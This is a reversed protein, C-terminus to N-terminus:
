RGAARRDPDDRRGAPGPVDAARAAPHHSLARGADREPLREPQRHRHAQRRGARRRRPDRPRVRGAHARGPRNAAADVLGPRRRAGRPRDRLATAARDLLTQPSEDFMFLAAHEGRRLPPRPSSRPWRPSAPARRAGVILTSTGSKSAAASCSMSSASHREDLMARPTPQRHEAAVLRPFVELGGRRIVYDHYGGRYQVGRYKVVRLRRREAGYEPNLQELRIVGHAISQMQLDHDSATLDDLLM